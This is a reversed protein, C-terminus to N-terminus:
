SKASSAKKTSNKKEKIFKCEISRGRIKGRSNASRNEGQFKIVTRRDYKKKAM